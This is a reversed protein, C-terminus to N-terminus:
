AEKGGRKGLWHRMTALLLQSEVPKPVFDNCGAELTRERDGPMAKATLAIIPLEALEPRERIHRTTEYGDMEPMMVDLLVLEIDRQASLVELAQEGSRAPVVNIGQRELLTTVAFLNRVDDDVVLVKRGHLDVSEEPRARETETVAPTSRDLRPEHSREFEGAEIEPAPYTRDEALLPLYLTFTSGQGPKSQLQIEGGLLRALERSITLGLGTGGYTRSTSADAQQFAEFIVQQKDTPIGIGTDAVAFALV